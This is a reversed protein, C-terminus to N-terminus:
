LLLLGDKHCDKSSLVPFQSLLEWSRLQMSKLTYSFMDDAGMLGGGGRLNLIDM